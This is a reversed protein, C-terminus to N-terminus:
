KHNITINRLRSILREGPFCWFNHVPGFLDMYDFIHFSVHHSPLIWGPFNHKLGLIHCRLYERFNLRDQLRSKHKTMAILACTLYLSTDLVSGMDKADSAALPSLVQWMSLLALPLFIAFLRRWNDAKPTGARPLGIYESPKSIWSPVTVEQIVQRVRDLVAPSDVPTWSFAYFFNGFINKLAHMPDISVQKSPSYYPLRWFESFRVGYLHEIREREARSEADRWKEAGERLYEDDIAEWDEYDVSNLYAKHWTQCTACYTHSGIDILGAFPHSAKADM